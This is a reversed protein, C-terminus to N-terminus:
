EASLIGSFARPLAKIIDRPLMSQETKEEVLIDAALGHVFAGVRSANLPSQGAASLAGIVGSLVDGSGGRSLGPNGTTNVFVEGNKGAVVTDAGKLVVTVGYNKAFVSAIGERSVAISQVDTKGLRAMEGMHPTLIIECKKRSLIDINRSLMNIGDADIILTKNYKTVITKLIKLTDRGQKMGPGLVVADAKKLASLLKKKNYKIGKKFTEKQINLIACPTRSFIKNAVRETTFLEAIGVGSRLAAETALSAAGPFNDSGAIILVRGFNGKHSNKDRPAILGLLTERKILDAM